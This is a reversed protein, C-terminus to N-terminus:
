NTSAVGLIKTELLYKGKFSVRLYQEDICGKYFLDKRVEM